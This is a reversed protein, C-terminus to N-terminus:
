KLASSSWLYVTEATHNSSSKYIVFLQTTAGDRTTGTLDYGDDCSVFTNGNGYLYYVECGDTLTISEEDGDTTTFSLTPDSFDIDTNDAIEFKGYKTDTSDDSYDVETFDTIWGTSGDESYTVLTRSGLALDDDESYVTTKVGNMVVNYTYYTEGVSSDYGSGETGTRTLLFIIDDDDDGTTSYDRLDVYVAVAYGSSNKILAYALVEDGLNTYTPLKSLGSYVKYTSTKTRLIFVTNSDAKASTVDTDNIDSEIIDDNSIITSQSSRLRSNNLTGTITSYSNSVTDFDYYGSSDSNTSRKLWQNVEGDALVYSSDSDAYVTARTGEQTVYRVEYESEGWSTSEETEIVFVYNSASSNTSTDGDSWVANGYQDLYLTLDNDNEGFIAEYGDTNEASIKESDTYYVGRGIPYSTDDVTVRANNGTSYASYYGEVSSTAYIYLVEEGGDLGGEALVYTVIDDKAISGAVKATASDPDDSDYEKNSVSAGGGAPKVTYSTVTGSTSAKTVEGVTYEIVVIDTIVDDNDPDNAFFEIVSGNQNTGLSEIVEALTDGSASLSEADQEAGNLWYYDLIITGNRDTSNNISYSKTTYSDSDSDYVSLNFKYGSLASAIASTSNRGTLIVDASESVTIDINVDAINYYKTAPRGFDDTTDDTDAEWTYTIIHWWDDNDEDMFDEKSYYEGSDAIVVSVDGAVVITSGSTSKWKRMDVKVAANYALQCAVDRSVGDNYSVGSIDDTLDQDKALTATGITWTTGTMGEEEANYGCATLLMKMFAYGTLTDDPGFTGDGYGVVIDQTVCYGIYGEAWHGVTDTFGADGSLDDDMKMLRTIIACGEARTLTGDPDFSGDEYGTVVGLSTLLDVAKIYEIDSYDSFSTDASVGFVCLSFMMVVALVLCLSKKLTRM